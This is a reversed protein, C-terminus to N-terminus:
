AWSALRERAEAIRATAFASGLRHFGARGMTATALWQALRFGAEGLRPHRAGTRMVAVDLNRM